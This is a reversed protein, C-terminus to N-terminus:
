LLTTSREDLQRSTLDFIRAKEGAVMRFLLIVVSYCCLGLVTVFEAVGNM